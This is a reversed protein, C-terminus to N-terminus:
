RNSHTHTNSSKQLLSLIAFVHPTGRGNSYRVVATSADFLVLGLVATGTLSLPAAMRLTRLGDFYLKLTWTALRDDLVEHPDLVALAM